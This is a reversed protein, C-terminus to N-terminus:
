RGLVLVEATLTIGSVNSDLIVSFGVVNGKFSVHQASALTLPTTSLHVSIVYDIQDVSDVTVAMKYQVVGAELYVTATGIEGPKVM